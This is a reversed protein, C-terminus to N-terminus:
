MLLSGKNWNQDTETASVETETHYLGINPGINRTTLNLLNM